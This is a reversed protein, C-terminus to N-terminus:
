VSIGKKAICMDLTLNATNAPKSRKLRLHESAKEVAETSLSVYKKVDRLPGQVNMSPFHLRVPPMESMVIHNDGGIYDRYQGIDLPGGFMRLLTRPPAPSLTTERYMDGYMRGLMAHRTWKVSDSVVSDAYNHALACEPSCFNGECNFINKYADYSVPLVIQATEFTHCCWFCVIQPSYQTCVATELISKLLDTNFASRASSTDMINLITTYNTSAELEHYKPASGSPVVTEVGTYAKLFFVVPADEMPSKTSDGKLKRPAM